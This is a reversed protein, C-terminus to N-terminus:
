ATSRQAPLLLDDLEAYDPLATDIAKGQRLVVRDSQPRSFLESFYRAKCLVLDAGLGVDIRGITPLKMLDAPTQTITRCWDGYPSELHAIRTAQTLVELGDLNGFTYFPDRCNDSAVAVPVGSHKFEHILTIGRWRPTHTPFNSRHLKEGNQTFQSSAAQNRDQLYLNCMPLSVIGIQAQRVLAISRQAVDHSQVALSCCHGCVVRGEYGHRLTAEAIYQLTIDNPNGSEDVHFDLDLDRDKALAFLRDLQATLDANMLTLGGLKGGDFQAFLDALKEGAPTMFYDIPILSVAQITLRDRWQAQLTKLAGLSIAAQEGYSDIHTRIAQTGQAYACKLSFEMRRYVDEGNWHQSSDAAVQALAEEFSGSRNPSRAWFHGKDLHTHLDAFCPLVIGRKLDIDTTTPSSPEISNTGAACLSRVRGDVIELDVLVLNERAAFPDPDPWNRNPLLSRPVHANKLRFPSAAPPFM